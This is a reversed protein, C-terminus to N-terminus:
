EGVSLDLQICNQNVFLGGSRECDKRDQEHLYLTFLYLLTLAALVKM